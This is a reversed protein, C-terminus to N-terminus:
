RFSLTGVDTIKQRDYTYKYYLLRQDRIAHLAYMPMQHRNAIAEIPLLLLHYFGNVTAACLIMHKPLYSIQLDVDFFVCRRQTGASPGPGQSNKM